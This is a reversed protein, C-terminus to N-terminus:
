KGNVMKGKGLNGTEVNEATVYMNGKKRHQMKWQWIKGNDKRGNGLKGNGLKGM